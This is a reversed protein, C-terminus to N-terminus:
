EDREEARRRKAEDRADSLIKAELTRQISAHKMIAALIDLDEDDMTDDGRQDNMVRWLLLIHHDVEARHM